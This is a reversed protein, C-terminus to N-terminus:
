LCRPQITAGQRKRYLHQSHYEPLHINLAIKWQLKQIRVRLYSLYQHSNGGSNNSLSSAVKVTLVTTAVPLLVLIQKQIKKRIVYCSTQRLPILMLLILFCLQHCVSYLISTIARSEYLVPSIKATFKILSIFVYFTKRQRFKSPVLKGPLKFLLSSVPCLFPSLQLGKITKLIYRFVNM